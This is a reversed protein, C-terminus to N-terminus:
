RTARRITSLFTNKKKKRKKKRQPATPSVQVPVSFLLQYESTDPILVRLPCRQLDQEVVFETGM